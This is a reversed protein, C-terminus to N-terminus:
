SEVWREEFKDSGAQWSTVLVRGQSDTIDQWQMIKGVVFRGLRDVGEVLVLGCRLPARYSSEHFTIEPREVMGAELQLGANYRARKKESSLVDYAAQIAEFQQRADPERCVDPHWQRALRRYAKRIEDATAYQTIALVAYLTKAAGPREHEGEFWATLVAKPFIVNWGGDCWGFATENGDERTKTAGIYRLDLIRMETSQSGRQIAPLEVHTRYHHAILTQAAQGYNHSVIWASLSKDWKRDTTPVTAKLTAVFSQDYPTHLAYGQSHAEIRCNSVNLTPTGFFPKTM